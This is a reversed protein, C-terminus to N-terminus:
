VFLTLVSSYSIFWVSSKKCTLLISSINYGQRLRDWECFGECLSQVISTHEQTTIINQMKDCIIQKNMNNKERWTVYGWPLGGFLYLSQILSHRQKEKQTNFRPHFTPYPPPTQPASKNISASLFSLPTCSWHKDSSSPKQKITFHALTDQGAWQNTWMLLWVEGAPSSSKPTTRLSCRSSSSSM